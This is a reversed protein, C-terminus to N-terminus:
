HQHKVIDDIKDLIKKLTKANLVKNLPRFKEALRELRIIQDITLRARLGYRIAYILDRAAINYGREMYYYTQEYIEQFDKSLGGLEVGVAPGLIIIVAGVQMVRGEREYQTWQQYM